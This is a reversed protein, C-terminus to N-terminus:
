SSSQEMSYTLLYIYINVDRATMQVESINLHKASIVAAVKRGM